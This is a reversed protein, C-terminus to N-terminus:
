LLDSRVEDSESVVDLDQRVCIEPLVRTIGHDHPDDTEQRLDDGREEETGPKRIWRKAKAALAEKLGHDIKRIQDHRTCERHQEEGQEGIGSWDVRNQHLKTDDTLWEGEQAIRRRRSGEDTGHVVDHPETIRGDEQHGAHHADIGCEELRCLDIARGRRLDEETDGQWQKTRNEHVHEDGGEDTTDLHEIYRLDQRVSGTIRCTIRHGHDHPEILMQVTLVETHTTGKGNKEEDDRTHQTHDDILGRGAAFHVLSAASHCFRLLAM